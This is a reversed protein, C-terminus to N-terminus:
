FVIKALRQIMEEIPVDITMVVVFPLTAALLLPWLQARRFPVIRMQQVRELIQSLDTAESFDQIGLMDPYESIERMWKPGFQRRQGQWLRWYRLTDRFRTRLLLGYFFFLPGAFLGMSVVILAVIEFKYRGVGAGTRLVINVLGAAFSTSVAFAVEKFNDLTLGLFGIGGSGDPHAGDLQLDLRSTKWLFAWWLAIRYLFRCFVFGYVPESIVAFWLGAPSLVRYGESGSVRWSLPLKAAVLALIFLAQAAYVLVLLIVGALRSHSLKMVYAVNGAFRERETDTVLRASL